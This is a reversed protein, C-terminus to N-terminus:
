EQRSSSKSIFADYLERISLLQKSDRQYKLGNVFYDDLLKNRMNNQIIRQANSILDLQNNNSNFFLVIVDSSQSNAQKQVSLYEREELFDLVEKLSANGEVLSKSLYIKM